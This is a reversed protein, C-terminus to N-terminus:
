ELKKERERKNCTFWRDDKSDYVLSGGRSRNWQSTILPNESTERENHDAKFDGFPFHEILTFFLKPCQSIIDQHQFNHKKNKSKEPLM